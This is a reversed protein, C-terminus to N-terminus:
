DLDPCLAPVPVTWYLFTSFLQAPATVEEAEEGPPSLDTSGSEDVQREGLKGRAEENRRRLSEVFPKWTEEQELCGAVFPQKEAAELLLNGVLTVYALNGPREAKNWKGEVSIDALTAAFKTTVLLDYKLGASASALLASILLSVAQHLFSACPFAALLGCVAELTRNSVFSREIQPTPSQLVISLLRILAIIRRIQGSSNRLLSTIAAVQDNILAFVDYVDVLAQHSAPRHISDFQFDYIEEFEELDMVKGVIEASVIAKEQQKSTFNGVLKLASQSQVLLAMYINWGRLDKGNDILDLLVQGANVVASTASSTSITDVLLDLIRMKEIAFQSGGCDAKLMGGLWESISRNGVQRVLEPSYDNGSFLFNVVEEANYDVLQCSVQALYGASVPDLLEGQLPAFLDPMHVLCCRLLAPVEVTLLRSAALM